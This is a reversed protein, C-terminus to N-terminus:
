IQSCTGTRSSKRSSCAHRICSTSRSSCTWDREAGTWPRPSAGTRAWGGAAGAPAAAGGADALRASVSDAKRLLVDIEPVIKLETVVDRIIQVLEEKGITRKVKHANVEKAVRYVGDMLTGAAAADCRTCSQVLGRVLEGEEETGPPDRIAGAIVAELAHSRLFMKRINMPEASVSADFYLTDAANRFAQEM